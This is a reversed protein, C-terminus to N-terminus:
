LCSVMQMSGQEAAVPVSSRLARRKDRITVLVDRYQDIGLGAVGNVHIAKIAPNNVIADIDARVEDFESPKWCSITFPPRVPALGELHCIYRAFFGYTPYECVDHEIMAQEWPVGHRDAIYKQLRIVLERKLPVSNTIYDQIYEEMKVGLFRISRLHWEAVFAFFKEVNEYLHLRGDPTYFDDVTVRDIFAFESDVCVIADTNIYAPSLLKAVQQVMWGSVGRRSIWFRPDSRRYRPSLRALELWEPLVDRTSLVTLNRNAEIQRFLELDEHNVVAVHPLDIGCSEISQRLFRFVALDRKFTPTLLTVSRANATSAAREAPIM